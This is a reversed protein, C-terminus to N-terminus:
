KPESSNKWFTLMKSTELIYDRIITAHCGHDKPSPRLEDQCWCGLYLCGTNQYQNIMRQIGQQFELNGFLQNYFWQKYRAVAEDVNRVVYAARTPQDSLHTYPNGYITPRGVYIYDSLISEGNEKTHKTRWPHRVITIM